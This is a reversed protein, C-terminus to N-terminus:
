VHSGTALPYSAERGRVLASATSGAYRPDAPIRVGHPASEELMGTMPAAGPCYVRVLATTRCAVWAQPLSHVLVWTACEDYDLVPM